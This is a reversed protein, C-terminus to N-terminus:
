GEHYVISGPALMENNHDDIILVSCPQVEQQQQTIHSNMIPSLPKNSIIQSTNHPSAWEQQENKSSTQWCMSLVDNQRSTPQCVVQMCGSM